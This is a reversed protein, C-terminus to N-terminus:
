STRPQHEAHWRRTFEPPTLYRLSQHPRYHNDEDRWDEILVQAEFLSNFTELNLLEDRLKGNFSEVYPNQWPAGPEIYSTTIQNFRCWDRLAQSILEPGNDSRIYRPTVARKEVLDELVGVTRDADISRAPCM